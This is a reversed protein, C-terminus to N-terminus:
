HHDSGKKTAIFDDYIVYLTFAGLGWGFGPFLNRHTAFARNVGDTLRKPPLTNIRPGARVQVHSPQLLHAIEEM